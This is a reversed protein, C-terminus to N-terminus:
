YQVVKLQSRIEVVKRESIVEAVEGHHDLFDSFAEIAVKKNHEKLGGDLSIQRLWRAGGKLQNGNKDLMNNM